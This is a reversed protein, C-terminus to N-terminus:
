AFAVLAKGLAPARFLEDPDDLAAFDHVDTVADPLAVPTGAVLDLAPRFDEYLTEGSGIV